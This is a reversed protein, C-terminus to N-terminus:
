RTGDQPHVSRGGILGEATTAPAEPELVVDLGHCLGRRKASQADCPRRTVGRDSDRGRLHVSRTRYGAAAFDVHPDGDSPKFFLFGMGGFRYEVRYSGDDGTTVKDQPLGATAGRTM